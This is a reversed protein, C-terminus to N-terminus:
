RSAGALARRNEKDRYMRKDAVRQLDVLQRGDLPFMSWGASIGLHVGQALAFDLEIEDISSQIRRVIRDLEASEIRPLVAIFEDGGWRCLEDQERLQHKLYDAVNKLARDGAEHGCTDNLKKFGDLDFVVVGYRADPHSADRFRREITEHFFRMNPLGTLADTLAANEREEFTIAKALAAAIDPALKSLLRHDDDCFHTDERSFLVSTAVRGMPGPLPVILFSRFEALPECLGTLTEPSITGQEMRHASITSALADCDGLVIESATERRLGLAGALRLAGEKKEVFIAGADFSVVKGLSKLAIKATEDVGVTQGLSGIVEFLLTAEQRASSIADLAQSVDASGYFRDAFEIQAQHIEAVDEWEPLDQSRGAEEIRDLNEILLDVLKPDYVRGSEQRLAKVMEERSLAERYNRPSRMADSADVLSLIRAALSIEQGKLGDPYGSGDWRERHQRIAQQVIEPFGVGSMIRAGIRPYARVKAMEDASLFSPKNLIHDPVGLRGIDHLLAATKLGEIDASSLGALEGLVSAHAQVRRVHGVTSQGRADMAAALAEIATAQVNAMSVIRSTKEQLQGLYRRYALFSGGLLLAPVLVVVPGYQQILLYVAGAVIGAVLFSHATWLYHDRWTQLLPVRRSVATLLAVQWTNALYHVFVLAALSTTLISFESFQSLLPMERRVFASALSGLAVSSSIVAVSSAISLARRTHRATGICADIAAITVAAWPGYFLVGLYAISDTLSLISRLGPIRLSFAGAILAAALLAGFGASNYVPDVWLTQYLAACLTGLGASIILGFTLRGTASLRRILLREDRAREM